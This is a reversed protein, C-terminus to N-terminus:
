FEQFNSSKKYNKLNRRSREALEKIVEVGFVRGRKGTLESLLALVYGCGSGIELVKQGRKLELLKLMMAITFPQSITQGKGIPFATDEYARTKLQLPIFNERHVKRFANLIEQSFGRNKLSQLLQTKNM